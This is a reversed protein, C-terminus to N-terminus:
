SYLQTFREFSLKWQKVPQEFNIYGPITVYEKVFEFGVKELTKNPAANLAYPECWLTKLHLTEFFLPITLKLLATGVGQKRKASHWLHLHMTADEGFNTPNTNSHGVPEGNSLWIICYSRRHEIPTNLQDILMQRFQDQSPMKEVDVGMSKLFPHEATFWYNLLLPIDEFHLARVSLM